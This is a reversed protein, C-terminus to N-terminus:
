SLEEFHCGLKGDYGKSIAWICGNMQTEMDEPSPGDSGVLQLRLREGDIAAHMADVAESNYGITCSNTLVAKAM